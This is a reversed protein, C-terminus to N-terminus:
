VVVIIAVDDAPPSSEDGGVRECGDVRNGGVAGLAFGEPRFHRDVDIGDVFRVTTDIDRLQKGPKTPAAAEAEHCKHANLRVM